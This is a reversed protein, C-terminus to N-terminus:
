DKEDYLRGKIVRVSSAFLFNNYKVKIAFKQAEHLDDFFPIIINARGSNFATIPFIKGNKICVPVNGATVIWVDKM